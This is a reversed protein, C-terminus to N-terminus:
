GADDYGCYRERGFTDFRNEQIAQTGSCGMRTSAIPTFALIAKNM